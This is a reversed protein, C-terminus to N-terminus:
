PCLFDRPEIKNYVVFIIQRLELKAPVEVQSIENIRKERESLEFKCKSLEKELKSITNVRESLINKM